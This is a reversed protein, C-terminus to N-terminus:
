TDSKAGRFRATERLSVRSQQNSRVVLDVIAQHRSLPGTQDWSIDPTQLACQNIADPIDDKAHGAAFLLLPAVHIHRVGRSVLSRWAQPITPEQFELLAPEVPIPALLEALRNSLQFFQETGVADRTGHGVLVVGRSKSSDYIPRNGFENM